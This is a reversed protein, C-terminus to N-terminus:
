PESTNSRDPVNRINLSMGHESEATNQQIYSHYPDYAIKLYIMGNKTFINRDVIREVDLFTSDPSLGLDKIKIKCSGLNDDRSGFDYDKIRISLVLNDLTQINNWTFTEGYVPNLENRKTSSVQYGM